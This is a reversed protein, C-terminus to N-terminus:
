RGFMYSNTCRPNSCSFININGGNLERINNDKEAHQRRVDKMIALYDQNDTESTPVEVQYTFTFTVTVTATLKNHRKM